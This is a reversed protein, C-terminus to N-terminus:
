RQPRPLFHFGAMKGEHEEIIKQFLYQSSSSLKKYLLQQQVSLLMVKTEFSIAKSHYSPLLFYYVVVWPLKM